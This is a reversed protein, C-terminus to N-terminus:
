WCRPLMARSRAPVSGRIPAFVPAAQDEVGVAEVPQLENARRMDPRDAVPLENGTEPAGRRRQRGQGVHRRADAAREAGGRARRDLGFRRRRCADARAEQAEGGSSVTMPSLASAARGTIAM